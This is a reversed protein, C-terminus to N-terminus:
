LNLLSWKKLKKVYLSATWIVKDGLAIVLDSIESENGEKWYTAKIGDGM